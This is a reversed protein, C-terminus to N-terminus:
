ELHMTVRAGEEVHRNADTVVATSSNEDVRVVDIRGTVSFPLDDDEHFLDFFEDRQEVIWFTNGVRVGDARGRDVFVTEGTFGLAAEANQLRAVITGDLSGRPVASETQVDVAVVKSVVDGREVESWSKRIEATSIGDQVHLVRAEAAVRWLAGYQGGGPRRVRKRERHLISVVDGCAPEEDMELYLVQGEALWQAGTHAGRVEGLREVEESDELVGMANYVAGPRPTDFHIDPGCPTETETFTATPPVYGEASAPLVTELAVQPPEIVTGPVFVIRNGPYIWHPNTIYDNISWLRPWFESSGLFTTSIDWLTDGPQVVYLDASPRMGESVSVVDQARAALLPLSALLLLCTV